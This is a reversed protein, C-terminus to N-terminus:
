NKKIYMGVGALGLISLGLILIYIMINDGTKPNKQEDIYSLAYTSFKDIEFTITNEDITPTIKTVIGDQVRILYFTRNSSRLNEPIELSVKIKGSTEEIKVKEGGDIQKFLNVGLFIGVKTESSLEKEILEKDIPSISQSM